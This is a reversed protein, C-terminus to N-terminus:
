YSIRPPCYPDFWKDWSWFTRSINFICCLDCWIWNQYFNFLNKQFSLIPRGTNDRNVINWICLILKQHFSIYCWQFSSIKWVTKYRLWLKSFNNAFAACILGYTSKIFISWFSFIPSVTYRHNLNRLLIRFALFYSARIFVQFFGSLVIHTM